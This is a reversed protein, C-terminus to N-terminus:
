FGSVPKAPLVLPSFRGTKPKFNSKQIQAFRFGTRSALRGTKPEVTIREVFIEFNSFSSNAPKVPKGAFGSGHFLLPCIFFPCFFNTHCKSFIQLLILYLHIIYLADIVCCIYQGICLYTDIYLQGVRVIIICYLYYLLYPTYLFMIQVQTIM